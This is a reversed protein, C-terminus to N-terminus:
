PYCRELIDILDAYVGYATQAVGPTLSVTGFSGMLGTEFLILNSTGQISAFLETTAFIEPRAALRLTGGEYWARSILRVTRGQRHLERVREGTWGGIGEREVDSPTVRADMLVNALAATKAASDWGGTDYSADAEAVGLARAHALGEDFTGGREMQGLVLQSTSNLVGAFGLVQVRPLGNRFLNFVPAGDMVSSEFRFCLNRCAAEESLAHYAHAIPGKNATVVHMGSRFAAQIHSIAPQGTIPNLTTLEILTDARSQAIFEAASSAAPQSRSHIGVITFREDVALLPLLARTVSGKGLIALRM